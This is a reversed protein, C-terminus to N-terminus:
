PLQEANIHEELWREFTERDRSIADWAEYYTNDRQSYGAAYSPHCGNPAQVVASVTWSPLITANRDDEFHTVIEEVTVIAHRAALVAEKQVGTIGWLRVNGNVDAQQAHIITV